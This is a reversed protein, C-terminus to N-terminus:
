LAAGLALLVSGMILAGVKVSSGANTIATASPMPMVVTTSSNGGGMTANGGTSAGAGSMTINACAIRTTSNLHIVVSLGGIYAPTSKDTSIYDDIYSTTFPDSGVPIKGHKGSLDGVQCTEPASANCPPQEGRVYPDLHAGASACNGDAALAYQHIHQVLHAHDSDHL